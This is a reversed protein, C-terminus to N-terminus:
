ENFEANNLAEGDVEVRDYDLYIDPTEISIACSSWNEWDRFLFVISTNDRDFSVSVPKGSSSATEQLMKLLPKVFSSGIGAENVNITMDAKQSPDKSDDGCRPLFAIFGFLAIRLPNMKRMERCVPVYFEHAAPSYCPKTFRPLSWGSFAKHQHAQFRNAFGHWMLDSMNKHEGDWM